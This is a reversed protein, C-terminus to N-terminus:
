LNSTVYFIRGNSKSIVPKVEVEITSGIEADWDALKHLHESDVMISLAQPVDTDLTKSFYSSAFVLYNREGRNIKVLKARLFLM